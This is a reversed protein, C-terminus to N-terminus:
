ARESLCQGKYYEGLLFIWRAYEEDSIERKMRKNYMSQGNIVYDRYENDSLRLLIVKLRNLYRWKLYL